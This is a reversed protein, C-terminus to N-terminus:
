AGPTMMGTSRPIVGMILRPARMRAASTPSASAVGHRGRSPRAGAQNKMAIRGTEFRSKGIPTSRASRM